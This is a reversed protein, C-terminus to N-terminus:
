VEQRDVVLFVEVPIQTNVSGLATCPKGGYDYEDLLGGLTGDGRSRRFCKAASGCRREWRPRGSGGGGGSEAARVGGGGGEEAARVTIKNPSATNMPSQIIVPREARNGRAGGQSYEGPGAIPVM